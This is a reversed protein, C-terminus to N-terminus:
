VLSQLKPPPPEVPHETRPATAMVFDPVISKLLVSVSIRSSAVPVTYGCFVCGMEENASSLEIRDHCHQHEEVMAIDSIASMSGNSAPFRPWSMVMTAYLILLALICIFWPHRNTKM